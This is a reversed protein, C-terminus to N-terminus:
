AVPNAFACNDQVSTIQVSVEDGPSLGRDDVIVVFGGVKAVGDGQDGISEIKVDLHENESVPPQGHAVQRGPSRNSARKETDYKSKSSGSDVSGDSHESKISDDAAVESDTSEVTSSGIEILAIRYNKGPDVDGQVIERKPVEVYHKGSSGVISGTFLSRLRPSIDMASM